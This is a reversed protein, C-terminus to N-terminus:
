GPLPCHLARYASPTRGTRQRFLRSFHAPDAYGAAAAAEVVGQAPDALLSKAKALRLDTLYRWPTTGTARKFRRLFHFRSLGAAAAMAALGGGQEVVAILRADEGLREVDCKKLAVLLAVLEVAADLQSHRGRAALIGHIATMRRAPEPEIGVRIVLRDGAFGSQLALADAWSGQYHVWLLDWGVDPDCSFSHSRNAPLLVADGATLNRRRGGVSFWGQGSQILMVLADDITRDVVQHRRSVFHGAQTPVVELRREDATPAAIASRYSEIMGAINDLNHCLGCLSIPM